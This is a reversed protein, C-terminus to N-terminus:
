AKYAKFLLPNEDYLIAFGKVAEEESSARLCGRYIEADNCDRWGYEKNDIKVDYGTENIEEILGDIDTQNMHMPVYLTQVDRNYVEVIVYINM